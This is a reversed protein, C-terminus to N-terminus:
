EDVEEFVDSRCILAYPDLAGQALRQPANLGEGARIGRIVTQACRWADALEDAEWQAEQVGAERSDAPLQLYGASLPSAALDPHAQPLLRLYLPLQLDKWNGDRDPGHSKRPDEAQTRTKIDLIQILGSAHRDIRDIRGVLEIPTADVEVRQELSFESHLIEWGQAHRAAQIQAFTRLRQRFLELQVRVAPQPHPGFWVGARDMLAATLWAEIERASKLGAAERAFRDFIAHLLTGVAAPDLERANPDRPRLRLVHSLHFRYPCRLWDAFASISLRLVPQPQLVPAFAVRRDEHRLTAGLGAIRPAAQLLHALRAPLAERTGRLLLRSPLLPKSALDRRALFISCSARSKTMRALLYLDRAERDADCPLGLQERLTDPLLSDYPPAKPLCGENAGVILLHPADDAALELWGIAEVADSQPLEVFRKPLEALLLEIAGAADVRPQLPTALREFSELADCAAGLFELTRRGSPHSPEYREAGCLRELVRRLAAAWAGLEREDGDLEAALSAIWQLIPRVASAERSPEQADGFAHPLHQSVYRDLSEIPRQAGVPAERLRAEVLPVRAFAALAAFSRERLLQALQTLAQWHAHRQADMGDALHLSRGQQELQARLPPEVQSDLLGISLEDVALPGLECLRALVQSAEQSPDSAVRLDLGDLFELERLWAARVPRGYSDFQATREAAAHVLAVCDETWADIYRLLLPSLEALGILVLPARHPALDVNAPWECEARALAAAALAEVQSLAALRAWEREPLLSRLKADASLRRLDTGHAALEALLQACEQALSNSQEPQLHLLERLGRPAASLAARFACELELPTPRRLGTAVHRLEWQGPVLIEPPDFALREAECARVLLELYRRAARRGSLVHEERSLDVRGRTKARAINWAAAAPLLPRHWDLFVLQM